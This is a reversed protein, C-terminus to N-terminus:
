YNNRNKRKKKLSFMRKIANVLKNIKIKIKKEVLYWPAINELYSPHHMFNSALVVKNLDVVDLKAIKFM